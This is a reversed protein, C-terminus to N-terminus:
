NSVETDATVVSASGTSEDRVTYSELQATLQTIQQQLETVVDEREAIVREKVMLESDRQGIVAVSDALEAEKDKLKKRM